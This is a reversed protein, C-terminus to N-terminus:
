PRVFRLGASIGVRYPQYYFPNQTGKVKVPSFEAYPGISFATNRSLAFQKGLGLSVWGLSQSSNLDHSYEAGFAAFFRSVPSHGWRLQRTVGIGLMSFKRNEEIRDGQRVTQYQGKDDPKVLYNDNAIEYSYTQRFNSFHLQLQIGNREVGGSLKYGMSRATFLSPFSFNQFDKAASSPVTLIQYSHLEAANFLWAIRAPNTVIVKAPKYVPAVVGRLHLPIEAQTLPMADLEELAAVHLASDAVVSIEDASAAQMEDFVSGSGIQGETVQSGDALPLSEYRSVTAGGINGSHSRHVKAAPKSGLDEVFVNKVVRESRPDPVKVALKLPQSARGPTEAVTNASTGAPSATHPETSAPQNAAHARVKDPVGFPASLQGAYRSLLIGSVSILVLAGTFWWYRGTRAPKVRARIRDLATPNPQEEYDDFKRKLVDRLAENFKDESTKM